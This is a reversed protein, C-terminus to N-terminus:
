KEIFDADTVGENIKIDQIMMPIEQEGVTQVIKYPMLVTGAKKYDSYDVSITMEQGGAETTYEERLLLGSKSSYYEVSVKGSPKTVKMKYVNEEGVKGTGLYSLQYDNSVYAVQPIIFKDDKAENIEKEDMESKQGM